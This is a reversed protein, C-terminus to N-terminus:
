GGKLCTSMFTKRAEGSLAQAAARANCDKMRTQQSTLPKAPEEGKLCSSMFAKRDDGTKGAASKNCAVMRQQQLTMEKSTPAPTTAPAGAGAASKTAANGM